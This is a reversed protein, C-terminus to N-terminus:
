VGTGGFFLIVYIRVTSSSFEGSSVLTYLTMHSMGGAGVLSMWANREKVRNWGQPKGVGWLKKSCLISKEAM